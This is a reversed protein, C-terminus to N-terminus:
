GRLSVSFIFTLEYLTGTRLHPFAFYNHGKGLPILPKEVVMDSMAMGCSATSIKSQKILYDGLALAVDAWLSQIYM